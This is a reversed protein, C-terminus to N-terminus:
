DSYAAHFRSGTLPLAQRGALSCPHSPFCGGSPRGLLTPGFPVLTNMPNLSLEVKTLM